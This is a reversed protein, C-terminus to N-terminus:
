QAIKMERKYTSFVYIWTAESWTPLLRDIQPANNLWNQYSPSAEIARWDPHVHELARLRRQVEEPAPRSAEYAAKRQVRDANNRAREDAQRQMEFQYRMREMELEHQQLMMEKQAEAQRDLEAQRQLADGLGGLAGWAGGAHASSALLLACCFTLPRLQM